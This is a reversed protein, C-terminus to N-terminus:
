MHMEYKRNKRKKTDKDVKKIVSGSKSDRAVRAKGKNMEDMQRATIIDTGEETEVYFYDNDSYRQKPM